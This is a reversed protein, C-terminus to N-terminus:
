QEELAFNTARVRRLLINIRVYDKKIKSREKKEKASYRVKLVLLSDRCVPCGVSTDFFM